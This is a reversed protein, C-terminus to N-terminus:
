KGLARPALGQQRLIGALILVGIACLFPLMSLFHGISPDALWPIGLGQVDLILRNIVGFALASVAIRVPRWGGVIVLGIAIWGQGNSLGDSWGPTVALSLSAGALGALAGGTLICLYRVRKVRIGVAEASDPDEGCAVVVTGWRTYAFFAWVAVIVAYTVYVVAPHQFFIPGLGPISSLGPVAFSGFRAIGERLAVLHAGGVSSVGMGVFVLALGAVVQNTQLTLVSVAHILAMLLGAAMGALLGVWPSGTAHVTAVGTMASVLLMGEIGLNLVGSRETISEGLATLALPTASVVGAELLDALFALPNM